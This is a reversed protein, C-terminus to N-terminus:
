IFQEFYESMFVVRLCLETGGLDHGDGENGGLEEGAILLFGEVKEGAVAVDGGAGKELLRKLRRRCAMGSVSQCSDKNTSAWVCWFVFGSRM